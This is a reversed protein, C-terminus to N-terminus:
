RRKRKVGVSKISGGKRMGTSGDMAPNGGVMPQVGGQWMPPNSTDTQTIKPAAHMHSARMGQMASKKGLLAMDVEKQKQQQQQTPDTVNGGDDYRNVVGGKAIGTWQSPPRGAYGRSMGEPTLEPGKPIVGTTGPSGQGPRSPRQIDRDNNGPYAGGALRDSPSEWEQKGRDPVKWYGQGGTNPIPVTVSPQQGSPPGQVGPTQPMGGQPAQMYPTNQQPAQMHPAQPRAQPRAQPQPTHRPVTPLPIRARLEPPLFSNPRQPPMPAQQPRMPAQPQYMPIQQQQQPPAQGHTLPDAAGAPQIDGGDQYRRIVM